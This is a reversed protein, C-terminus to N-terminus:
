FIRQYSLRYNEHAEYFEGIIQRYVTEKEANIAAKEDATASIAVTNGQAILESSEAARRHIMANGKESIYHDADVLNQIIQEARESGIGNILFFDQLRDRKVKLYSERPSSSISTHVANNDPNTSIPANVDTPDDRLVVPAATALGVGHGLVTAEQSNEDNTPISAVVGRAFYGLSFAILATLAIAISFNKM